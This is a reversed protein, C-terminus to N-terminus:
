KTVRKWSPMAKELREAGEKTDITIKAGSHENRFEVRQSTEVM